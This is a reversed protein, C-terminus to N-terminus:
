LPWRDRDAGPTRRYEEQRGRQPDGLDNSAAAAAAAPGGAADNNAAARAREILRVGDDDICVNHYVPNEVVRPIERYVERVIQQRHQELGASRLRAAAIADGARDLEAAARELDRAIGARVSDKGVGVGYFFGGTAAALALALAALLNGALGGLSLAPM